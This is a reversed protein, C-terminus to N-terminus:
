RRKLIAYYVISEILYLVIGIGLFIWGHSREGIYGLAIFTDGLVIDFIGLLIFAAPVGFVVAQLISRTLSGPGTLKM